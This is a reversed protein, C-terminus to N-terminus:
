KRLLTGIIDDMQTSKTMLRVHEPDVRIGLRAMIPGALAPLADRALQLLYGITQLIAEFFTPKREIIEKRLASLEQEVIVRNDHYFQAVDVPL